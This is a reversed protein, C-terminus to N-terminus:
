WHKHLQELRVGVLNYPSHWNSQPIKWHIAAIFIKYTDESSKKGPQSRPYGQSIEHTKKPWNSPKNQVCNGDTSM